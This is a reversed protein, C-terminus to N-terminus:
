FATKDLAIRAWVNTGTCVYMYNTDLRIDGPKGSSNTTPPIPTTGYENGVPLRFGAIPKLPKGNIFTSTNDTTVGFYLDWSIINSGTTYAKWLTIGYANQAYFNPNDQGWIGGAFNCSGTTYQAVAGVGYTSTTPSGEPFLWLGFPELSLSYFNTNTQIQGIALTDRINSQNEVTLSGGVYLDKSIAVGGRVQLAGTTTSTSNTLDTLVNVGVTGVLLSGTNLTNVITQIATLESSATELATRIITFNDRFGQSDNDVGAIPYDTDLTSVNIQSTM